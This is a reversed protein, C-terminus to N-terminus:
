VVPPARLSPIGFFALEIQQKHEANNVISYNNYFVITAIAVTTYPLSLFKCLVCSHMEYAHQILHGSCHHNICDDCKTIQVNENEHHIHLSSFILMPVFLALLIWASINRKAKLEM